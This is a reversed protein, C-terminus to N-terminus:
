RIEKTKRTIKIHRRQKAKKRETEGALHVNRGQIFHRQRASALGNLLLGRGAVSGLGLGCGLRGIGLGSLLKWIGGTHCNLHYGKQGDAQCDQGHAFTLQSVIKSSQIKRRLGMM